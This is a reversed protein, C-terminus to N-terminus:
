RSAAAADRWPVPSLLLNRFGQCLGLGIGSSPLQLACSLAATWLAEVSPAAFGVVLVRVANPPRVVTQMCSLTKSHEAAIMRACGVLRTLM